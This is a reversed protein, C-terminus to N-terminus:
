SSTRSSFPPGRLGHSSRTRVFPPFGPVPAHLSFAGLHLCLPTISIFGLSVLSPMYVMLFELPPPPSARFLRGPPRPLVRRTSM